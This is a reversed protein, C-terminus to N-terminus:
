KCELNCLWKNIALREDLQKFLYVAVKATPATIHEKVIQPHM